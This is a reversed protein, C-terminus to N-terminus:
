RTTLKPYFCMWRWWLSLQILWINSDHAVAAAGQNVGAILEDLPVARLGSIRGRAIYQQM